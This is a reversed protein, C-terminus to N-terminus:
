ALAREESATEDNLGFVPQATAIGALTFEGLAAFEGACHRAFEASALIIRGLRGTLTEIRAARNVAPGICTFDLRNGGGINGYSVRGLHLALGFGLPAATEAEMPPVLAAINARTRRAASLARDCIAAPTSGAIPFIALLGDGIFKLVEGGAATIAPVQCDFYRNLLDILARSAMRDSLATFGRMDSMWIAADIEEIDGRRIQGALIREGAQHGIYTDLLTGATLRLVRIEAARALPALIADLGALETDFFGGPTRTAWTALHVSGDSFVLPTVYYDTGGEAALDDLVPFDRPCEPDAIRRRLAKGHTMVHPFPSNRYAATDLIGFPAELTEVPAAPQWRFRHGMLQPNLTRVLVAVRWLPVGCGVLRECLEAVAQEPTAASQAGDVLWAVVSRTDGNAM